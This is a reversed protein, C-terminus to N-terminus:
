LTMGVERMFQFLTLCKIDFLKCVNPIKVSKKVGPEYKEATVISCDYALAYSILWTDANEYTMFQDIASQHYRNEERHETIIRQTIKEYANLVHQKNTTLIEGAYENKIWLHLDDPNEQSKTLEKKVHDIISFVNDKALLNLKEWFSPVIDFSYYENKAQIFINSDLLYRRDM